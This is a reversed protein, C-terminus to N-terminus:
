RGDGAVVFPAWLTPNAYEPHQRDDIMALMAAQLAAARGLAPAAKWHKITGVTLAQVADDRVQWHSALVARAGASFFGRALGSLGEGSATSDPAATNCASLIVWDAHLHLSAAESATLLGDDDGTAHAPPTLVLAPEATPSIEGALLGHTAFAVVSVDALPANKVATVTALAGTVISTHDAGLAAALAELELRSGPLQPFTRLQSAIDEGTKRRVSAFSRPTAKDASGDLAPDGFGAFPHVSSQGSGIARLARLAGISPLTVLAHSRVLWRTQRLAKADSDKGTPPQTPLMALPLSGLAGDVVVYVTKAQQIVPEVPAWITKYLAYAPQRPFAPAAPPQADSLDTTLTDPDLAARLTKVYGAIDARGVASRRWEARTSTVAFSYTSQETSHVLVIAEDASLLGQADAITLPAISTLQAYGPSRKALAADAATYAARAKEALGITRDIAVQDVPMATRALIRDSDAKALAKSADQRAVILQSLVPDIAALRTAGGSLALATRSGIVMQVDRFAGDLIDPNTAAQCLLPTLILASLGALSLQM